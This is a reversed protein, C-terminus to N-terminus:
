TMNVRSTFTSWGTRTLSRTDGYAGVDMMGIKIGQGRAGTAYAYEAGLSGVLKSNIFEQTRWSEAAKELDDTKVSIGGPETPAMFYKGDAMAGPATAALILATVVSSRLHNRFTALCNQRASFAAATAHFSM